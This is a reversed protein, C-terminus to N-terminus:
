WMGLPLPIALPDHLKTLENAYCHYLETPHIIRYDLTKLIAMEMRGLQKQELQFGTSDVITAILSTTLVADSLTKIALSICAMM